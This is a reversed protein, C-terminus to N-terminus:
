LSNNFFGHAFSQGKQDVVLQLVVGNLLGCPRLHRILLISWFFIPEGTNDANDILLSLWRVVASLKHVELLELM